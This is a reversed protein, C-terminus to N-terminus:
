VALGGCTFVVRRGLELGDGVARVTHTVRGSVQPTAPDLRVDLRVHVPVVPLPRRVDPRAGPEDFAHPPVPIAPERM